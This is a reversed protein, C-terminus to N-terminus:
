RYINGLVGLGLGYLGTLGTYGLQYNYEARRMADHQLQHSRLVQEQSVRIEEITPKPSVPFKVPAVDMAERWWRNITISHPLRGSVKKFALIRQSVIM